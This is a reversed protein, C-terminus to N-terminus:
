RLRNVQEQNAKRDHNGFDFPLPLQNNQDLEQMVEVQWRRITAKAPSSYRKRYNALRQELKRQVIQQNEVM